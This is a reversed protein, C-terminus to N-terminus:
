RNAASIGAVHSGHEGQQDYDHVINLTSDVYNFGYPLKEPGSLQKATVGPMRQAAHLKDLVAAIDDADLLDLSAMYSELSMGKAKANEALAHLYAGNDFSQHDTETGTDVIAIRTGAGTYGSNWLNGSGIMASSTYANPVLEENREAV